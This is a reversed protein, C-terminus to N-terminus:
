LSSDQTSQTSGSSDLTSLDVRPFRMKGLGREKLRRQYQERTTQLVSHCREPVRVTLGTRSGVDVDLYQSDSGRRDPRSLQPTLSTPVAGDFPFQPTPRDPILSSSHFLPSRCVQIPPKAAINAAHMFDAMQEPVARLAKQAIRSRNESLTDSADILDAITILQLCPRVGEKRKTALKLLPNFDASGIGIIIVSLPADAAAVIASHLEKLDMPVGRTFIALVHYHLGRFGSRQSSKIAANVIPAFKASKMPTVLSEAKRYAEIVGDLGRCIPDINFNLHFEHTEHFTPPIKAGLGFAAFLRNPTYDRLIGGIARIALHVDADFKYQEGDTSLDDRSFDVAVEYHLQTGSVIYDLFSFFSVDTFKVLEMRGSNEYSQLFGSKLFSQPKRPGKKQQQKVENVVTYVNDPGPGYKMKAYTTLFKGIYGESGDVDRYMVWVELLRNRNDAADQTGLRFEAWQPHSHNKIAESEYLLVLEDEDKGEELRFVRFFVATEDWILDKRELSRGHLQVIIPQEKEPMQASIIVVGIVQQSPRSSSLAQAISVTKFLSRRLQLGFSGILEDVKFICSGVVDDSGSATEGDHLRCIDIKILQAKEFVYKFSIKDEFDVSRTFVVTPNSTGLHRWQKENESDNQWLVCCVRELHELGVLDSVAISIEITHSMPPLLPRTLVRVTPISLARRGSQPRVIERALKTSQRRNYRIRTMPLVKNM